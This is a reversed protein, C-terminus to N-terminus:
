DTYEGLHQFLPEDALSAGFVIKKVGGPTLNLSQHTVNLAALGDVNLYTDHGNSFLDLVHWDGDAVPSDVTMEFLGSAASKTMYVLKGDNVQLFLVFCHSWKVIFM